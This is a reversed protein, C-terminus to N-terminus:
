LNDLMKALDSLDFSDKKKQKIENKSMRSIDEMVLPLQIELIEKIDKPKEYKPYAMTNFIEISINKVGQKKFEKKHKKLIQKIIWKESKEEPIMFYDTHLVTDYGIINYFGTYIGEEEDDDMDMGGGGTQNGNLMKKIIKKPNVKKIRIGSVEYKIEVENNGLKLKLPKSLKKRNMKYTYIKKNSGQTIEKISILFSCTGTINSKKCERNFAKKAAGFPSSSIYRGGEKSKKGNSIHLITFSRKNDKM